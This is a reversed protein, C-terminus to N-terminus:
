SEASARRRCARPAVRSGACTRSRARRASSGRSSARSGRRRRHVEHRGRVPPLRLERLELGRRCASRRDRRSRRRTRAAPSSRSTRSTRAFLPPSTSRSRASRDRAPCSASRRRATWRGTRDRGGARRDPRLVAFAGSTSGRRARRCGRAGCPQSGCQVSAGARRAPRLDARRRRFPRDRFRSLAEAALSTSHGRSM